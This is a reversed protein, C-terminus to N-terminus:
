NKDSVGRIYGERAFVHAACPLFKHLRSKKVPSDDGDILVVRGRHVHRCIVDEWLYLSSRWGERHMSGFIILDLTAVPSATPSSSSSSSSSSSPPTLLSRIETINRTIVDSLLDLHLGFSYGMGYQEARERFYTTQNFHADRKFLGDRSPFDLVGALSYSSTSSAVDSDSRISDGGDGHDHGHGDRGRRLGGFLEVLGHLLFDTTYDGKDMDWTNKHTLYLISRPWTIAARHRSSRTQPQQQPYEGRRDAATDHTPLLQPFDRQISERVTRLLYTALATTTMTQRAYQLLALQVHRLFEDGHPRSAGVGVDAGVDITTTPVEYTYDRSLVYTHQGREVTTPLRLGPTRLLLTYLRKPHVGLVERPADAVDLFLPLAAHALIEYHRLCDWGAKKWTFVFRSVQLDDHYLGEEWLNFYTSRDGPVVRAFDKSKQRPVPVFNESPLGFFLSHVALTKSPFLSPQQEHSTLLFPFHQQLYETSLITPQMRTSLTSYLQLIENSVELYWTADPSSRFSTVIDQFYHYYPQYTCRIFRSDQKSVSWSGEGKLYQYSSLHQHGPLIFSCHQHEENWTLITPESFTLFLTWVLAV